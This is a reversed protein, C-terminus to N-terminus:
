DSLNAKVVERLPLVQEQGDCEIVLDNEDCRIIQGSFKRAGEIPTRLKLVLKHGVFRQYHASCFLPRDLGPSSVELTYNGAIPDEVDLLASIQKSVVECDSIHIGKESDIYVRLLSHKGQALYEIGWLEFGLAEVTPKLLGAIESNNMQELFM